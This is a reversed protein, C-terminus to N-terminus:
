QPAAPPPTPNPNFPQPQYPGAPQQPAPYPQQPAPYQQQPAPYPQQPAPYAYPQQARQAYAAAAADELEECRGVRRFGIYASALLGIAAVSMIPIGAAKEGSSASDSASGGVISSIAALGYIGDIWPFVHSDTCDVPAGPAVVPPAPRVFVLSCANVHVALCVLGIVRGM